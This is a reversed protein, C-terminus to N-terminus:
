LIYGFSHGNDDFWVLEIDEDVSVKLLAIKSVSSVSEKILGRKLLGEGLVFEVYLGAMENRKHLPCKNETLYLRM